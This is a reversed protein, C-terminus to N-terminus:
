SIVTVRNYCRTGVPTNWTSFERMNDMFFVDKTYYESIWCLSENKINVLFKPVVGEGEVVVEIIKYRAHEMNNMWARAQIFMDFVMLGVSDKEAEVTEGVHYFRVFRKPILSSSWSRRNNDVVKYKIM